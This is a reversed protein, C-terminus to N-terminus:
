GDFSFKIDWLGDSKKEFPQFQDVCQGSSMDWVKVM